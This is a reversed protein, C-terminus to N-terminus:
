CFNAAAGWHQWIAQQLLGRALRRRLQLWFHPLKRADFLGIGQVIGSIILLWGLFLVVAVSSVQGAGPKTSLM